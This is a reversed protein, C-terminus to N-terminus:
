NEYIYCFVLINVVWTVFDFLRPLRYFIEYIESKKKINRVIRKKKKKNKKAIKENERGFKKSEEEM